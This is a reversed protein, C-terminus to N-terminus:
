EDLYKHFIKLWNQTFKQDSLNECAFKYANESMKLYEQDNIQYIKMIKDAYEEISLNPKLLFGNKNNDTLYQASVFTNKIIVPLGFCLSQVISFSFGEYESMLIMFKYKTFLDELNDNNEFFGKYSNGLKKILNSDGKGYFDILHIKNNIANLLDINKQENDIRGFYIIRSKKNISKKLIVNLNLPVFNSLNIIYSNFPTNRIKKVEEYNYKDFLILNKTKLLNNRVGFILKSFNIIFRLISNKIYSSSYVGPTNHQVWLYTSKDKFKSFFTVTSDIILDYNNQECLHYVLKRFKLILFSIKFYNFNGNQMRYKTNENFVHYYIDLSKANQTNECPLLAARDIQIKQFNSQLINYIKRNYNEIGGQGYDPRNEILLIRKM